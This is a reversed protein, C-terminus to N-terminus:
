LDFTEDFLPFLTRRHTRTKQKQCQPFKSIPILKLSVYPDCQGAHLTTTHFQISAEQLNTKMKKWKSKVWQLNRQSRSLNNSGFQQGLHGNRSHNRVASKAILKNNENTRIALPDPPKLHRANLVEVRIHERLVQCRVTISGLNFEGPKVACQEKYREGLYKAILETSDSAYLTLLSKMKLLTEDQPVRDGYFFNILINLTDLLATFHTPPKRREISLQITDNLSQASSDWIVSLIREFNQENLTEKLVVLNKDLYDLLDTPHSRSSTMRSSGEVLFRQIVPAMRSGITDLVEFIKNEVNEIANQILTHLTRRCAAAVNAGKLIKLKELVEDIGLETQVFPQIFKLVNDINNIALCQHTTVVFKRLSRPNFYVANDNDVNVFGAAVKKCM